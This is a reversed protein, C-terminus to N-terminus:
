DGISHYSRYTCGDASCTTEDGYPLQKTTLTGRTECNPCTTAIEAQSWKKIGERQVCLRDGGVHLWSRHDWRWLSPNADYVSAVVRKLPNTTAQYDMWTYVREVMDGCNVCTDLETAPAFVLPEGSAFAARMDESVNSWGYTM